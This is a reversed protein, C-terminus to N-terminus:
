AEMTGAAALPEWAPTSDHVVPFHLTFISGRDLESAVTLEGGLAETVRKAVALGLGTGHIRAAVVSPSRYFPEFVHALESSEIGVGHDHVSIRVENFHDETKHVEAYIGIWRSRGSYKIANVVLNQLCHSLASLDSMVLPLEAPVHQEISFGKEEAMVAVNRLVCRIIETVQVPRLVYRYQGNEISAFLLIQNVLDILQHTQSTIISGHVMLDPKGEILGDRINQGTSYIAALPTLLEHSVSAVFDLQLQALRAGRRNAIVLLGFAAALLILVLGGAILNRRRVKAVTAELSGTRHRLTLMWPEAQSTYQIAPFWVPGAFQHWDAVRGSQTNKIGEWFHGEVSEPPPGFINMTSDAGSIRLDAFEPDSSYILRPTRGTAIVALKYELGEGKDFYRKALKPLIIKQITNLNLVVVIWDVPTQISPAPGLSLRHGAPHVLPHAIAPINSDFQWGTIADGRPPHSLSFSDNGGSYGESDRSKWANLALPLSSSNEKLRHLLPLLSQSATSDEFTKTDPEFRLLRPKATRSTEWIYVNEVLDPNQYINEQFPPGNETRWEAYRELYDEWSDRAGSDPGVQLAVCITSLEGFFDLNWAMLSSQLTTTVRVKTAETLQSTWRYQLIAVIALLSTMGFAVAM